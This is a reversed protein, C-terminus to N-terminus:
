LFTSNQSIFAHLGSAVVTLSVQTDQLIYPLKPDRLFNGMLLPLWHAPLAQAAGSAQM